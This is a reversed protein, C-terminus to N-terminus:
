GNWRRNPGVDAHVFRDDKGLYVGTGGAWGLSRIEGELASPSMPETEGPLVLRFDLAHGLSHQSHVAVHHGKKRLIENLKASRYGSVLEVRALPHRAVLARVLGLLEPDLANGAGTVRDAMLADFRHASPASEDLPLREDTHTQVLTGLLPAGLECLNGKKNAHGLTHSIRADGAVRTATALGALSAFVASAVIWGINRGATM